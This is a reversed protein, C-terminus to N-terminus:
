APSSTSTASAAASAASWRRQLLQLLRDSITGVNMINAAVIFLPVALLMFSDYLGQIIQEAALGLDQGHVALYVIASVIMSLAIPAGIGALVFLALLCLSSRRREHAAAARRGTQM